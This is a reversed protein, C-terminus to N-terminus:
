FRTGLRRLKIVENGDADSLRLVHHNIVFSATKELAGLFKTEAADIRMGCMRRTAAVPGFSMTDGEISVSASFANCGANGDAKGAGPFRITANTEDAAASGHVDVALWESGELNPDDAVAISLAALMSAVVLATLRSVQKRNKEVQVEV